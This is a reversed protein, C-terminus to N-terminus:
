EKTNHTEIANLFEVPSFDDTLVQASTLETESVQEWEDKLLSFDVYEGFAARMEGVPVWSEPDNIVPDRFRAAIAIVNGRGKTRFLVLQPFVSRLTKIDSYYLQTTAHLNCVLVGDPSLRNACELYFEQTKLHPPVYGGRYADLIIWDWQERNRKIFLRGDMIEVPTKETPEFGMHTRALEYVKDDLEVSQILTDPFVHTFLRNYGAGGLGIMLVREPEPHIFLPSYMTKMYPVVPKLPDSLDVASELFVGRRSRARLEVLTGRKEITLSNYLTDYREVYNGDAALAAFPCATLLFAQLLKKM